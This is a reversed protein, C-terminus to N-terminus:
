CTDCVNKIKRATLYISLLMLLLIGIVFYIRYSLVFIVGGFGIGFFAFLPALCSACFATGAVGSFLVGAGGGAAAGIGGVDRKQRFAYVQMPIFLAYLSSLLSLIVFDRSSFIDLQQSVSIGPVSWSPIFTFLGFLGIFTAVSLFAYGKQSFTTKLGFWMTSFIERM